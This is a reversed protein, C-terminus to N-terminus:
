ASVPPESWRGANRGALLWYVLGAVIGAAAFAQALPAGLLGGADDILGIGYCLTLAELAGAAAYFLMSRLRFAEAVAIIVIAPLLALLAIFFFGVGVMVRFVGQDIDPSLAGRWFPVWIGIQLVISAALSAVVFAFLVVFIRGILAM